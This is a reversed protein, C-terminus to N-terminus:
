LDFLSLQNEDPLDNLVGNQTMFEIITKSVKGRKALDEKSIFPKDERAAVIQKAVNLGLGPVARFPAILKNGDILWESADSRNIDVMEFEFGRELMENAIELVTLLNKEKTSADTGKNNIEKISSKVAEKGHSMAVIDFDDARVSFYAAYYVLPFYVKFYAVRLAMLVYAAAHARPFMYKIKLCSDIYWQPVGVDTMKDQWEDKIGRGHRVQEMVQFSTESDLGWNILDTMINDRCGIVNAITATGDKILEEANGLWVDTGHSLGSIQLLESFNSPKTEELMGRVFRTGFEPIGLTGTKSFVQEPTVGLIKPSAFLSMVGPDDMPITTPDVGSLDQLMRIMTPDDHGLIDIKLINDHISHFDFHTTKWAANQDEAPYQIPTFDYIDMYDPVVIIGAPHQGTTRKVGTAGKSLRDIEANRFRKGTDREYAKVYGYATKDAVTGITGARYVNKEGFLVKTYNHAIPQYDGSFNLDIDPVKNGKFGLFTEFPINHGDGIMVTGCKPCKKHPLDFGSSYEGKTFFQSYQCNPCRYHPPLPNVETIGSMTAVLSSGVSGRSGVLYGDKNSKSVLRQAILYIVSFGNGIISKLERDLRKQVIDPLPDGYLRHATDLTRQRIEDEAGEMRPTYLKDKLPKVDDIKDAIKNTNDVVIEEAQDEGLFNFDKLMEDTTRFHLDPLEQRNLPNAGGQSHILIKRYIYDHPDLYHADGTAVLPIDLEHAIEYMNKIIEQLKGRDSILGQDILPQYAAQPQVELYDYFKAKNLAEQKGKQMMATFVEGSSCASGILLGERFKKLQSRPIRPVRYYYDVHAISVLKFLNKLGAQTQALIVAHFPRAHKYADHEEMHDNLQDHYQINYKDEAEKLFLYNLHGTSEADYIARHHHELSVDFKKALTNLRYSKFNPYLFRALTLTDIIPNSIKDMGHREYGTNMFGVDFTVNHGVIIADGYFERFLKFVEEESKSGAVMDNTISTLNTTQESLPFGPDIFEEFQDIVNNNQMKVASLEIVKDYIASLGTTEVDFVVYTADKLATHKDNYAIPEGDDVVNAEMGYIMKIDNDSAAHYADPFAQVDDHDTIAIAPHGWKKARSVYDSVSNTADMQSMNSHLHLEVRKKDKPATDEKEEHKIPNIDYANLTLEHSYNDEQISGRVKVWDGEDLAAFEQEEDDNKSFKKVVISSSYDTVKLIMLQRGSRLSRIEKNFVYGSVVASREEETIDVMKTVDVDDKIKKGILKSHKNSKTGKNSSTQMAKMAKQALEVDRQQKKKKLDDIKAQSSTADVMTHISFKPFGIKQYTAEIPGLAKGDLFDKVIENDALFTVRDDILKPLNNNCLEHTLNSTIGANNVVWQWYDGLKRNDFSNDKTKIEFDVTAIGDFAIDMHHIFEVFKEYPMIEPLELYFHWRNSKQHVDIKDIEANKFYSQDVSDSLKIQQLLKSFLEKKNLSM